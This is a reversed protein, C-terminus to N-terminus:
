AAKRDRKAKRQRAKAEHPRKSRYLHSPLRHSRDRPKASWEVVRSDPHDQNGTCLVHGDGIAQCFFERPGNRQGCLGCAWTGGPWLEDQNDPLGRGEQLARLTGLLRRVRNQQRQREEQLAQWVTLDSTGNEIARYEALFRQSRSRIAGSTSKQIRVALVRDKRELFKGM